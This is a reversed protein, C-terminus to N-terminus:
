LIELDMYHGRGSGEYCWRIEIPKDGIIVYWAQAYGRLWDDSPPTPLTITEEYSDKWDPGGETRMRLIITVADQHVPEVPGRNLGDLQALRIAVGDVLVLDMDSGSPAIRDQRALNELVKLKAMPNRHHCNIVNALWGISSGYTRGLCVEKQFRNM